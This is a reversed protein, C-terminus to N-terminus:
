HKTLFKLANPFTKRSNSWDHWGNFEHFKFRYGKKSLIHAFKRNTGLVMNEQLGWDIYFDIERKNEHNIKDILWDSRVENDFQDTLELGRWYSASQSIVNGFVDPHYYAIFTSALGGYSIGGIYNEQPLTSSAYNQRIHPVLEDIMFAKFEFNLPLERYRSNSTPNAIMVAMMPEILGENIMNDLINPVEVRHLYVHADFLYICPYKKEPKYNPPLYVHIKRENNMIKSEFLFTDVSSSLHDYKALNWNNEPPDLDLVSYSINKVEKKPIRNPNYPDIYYTYNGSITDLVKFRYSFCLDNPIIYSRYYLDTKALRHMKMDGFRYEDYIGFMKFSIDKNETSDRYLLTLYVYDDYSEDKEIIPFGENKGLEWIKKIENNLNSSDTELLNAVFPSISKYPSRTIKLDLQNKKSICGSFLIILIIFFLKNKM